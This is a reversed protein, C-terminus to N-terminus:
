GKERSIQGIVIMHQQSAPFFIRFCFLHALLVSSRGPLSWLSSSTPFSFSFYFVSLLTFVLSCNGCSLTFVYGMVIFKCRLKCGLKCGKSVDCPEAFKSDLPHAEDQPAFVGEQDRNSSDKQDRLSVVRKKHVLTLRLAYPFSSVWLSTWMTHKLGM